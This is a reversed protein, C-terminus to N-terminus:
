AVDQAEVGPAKDVDMLKLYLIAKIEYSKVGVTFEADLLRQGIIDPLAAIIQDRLGESFLAMIAVADQKELGRIYEVVYQIHKALLAEFSDESSQGLKQSVALAADGALYPLLKESPDLLVEEHKDRTVMDVLKDIVCKVEDDSLPRYNATLKMTDFEPDSVIFSLKAPEVFEMVYMLENIKCENLFTKLTEIHFSKLVKGLYFRYFNDPKM